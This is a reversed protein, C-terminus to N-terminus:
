AVEFAPLVQVRGKLSPDAHVVSDLHARAEVESGFEASGAHLANDATSALVFREDDATVHDKFPVKARKNHASLSSQAVATGGLFRKAFVSDIGRLKKLQPAGQSDITLLEYRNSRKIATSSFSTGGSPTLELGGKMPEFGPSALRQADSLDNFQAAAFREKVDGSKSLGGAVASLTFRQGDRVKSNGLKSVSVNLPVLKQVVQLTGSPHLVLAAEEAPISRMTVLGANGAPNFARWNELKGVEAALLPLVDVDPLPEGRPEGWTVDIAVGVDFFLLSISAEGRAHWPTPGELLVRISLGWVGLGFVKVSFNSYIEVEFYLPSFQLLADFSTTSEVSLVEFGFYIEARAGFQATNSTVAFYGEARVRGWSENLITVGLRTPVPFPLPPPTYRPHFGGVSLVFNADEGFAALLGMDGDITIFLIRSDFLSAFFYLRSRDFEIAGVFSVQLVVVAAAEAPLAVRLVGLIAINGPIEIIVGLSISVLTPTGWGLKAMPGILFTGEEPPFIARLDSIIRPANAVIDRPFMINNVSGNRVGAVLADLQMTRNLGVLGGVGLLTFGYGLQLGASGFEATIIMLLSFGDSGDPMRTSLIGIAKLSLFEAFTLELAGAYEGREADIFLYGGGRVVGADISLGVGNPPKFAVVLDFPGISGRGDAAPVLSLRIGINEVSAQLPGLNLSFGAGLSLNAGTNGGRASVYLTELKFVTLDLNIPIQFELGGSGAIALGSRSSWLLDMGFDASFGDGLVQKIFGDAESFTVFLRLKDVNAGGGGTNARFFVEPNSINGAFGGEATFGDLELRTSDRAGFLLFPEAPAGIVSLKGAIDLGAVDAQATVGDPFLRLKIVHSAGFAGTLKLTVADSLPIDIGAGGELIPSLVLGEPVGSGPSRPIPLASIGMRWRSLAVTDIGDVVTWDLQKVKRQKALALDIQGSALSTRPPSLTPQSGMALAIREFTAFLKTHDFSATGWGYLERLAGGPNSFVRGFQAFDVVSRTYPIRNAGSPTQKEFRVVGFAHVFSFILPQHRELYLVVLDGIMADALESWFSSQNFPTASVSAGQFSSFRAAVNKISQLVDVLARLRQEDTGSVLQDTRSALQQILPDLAFAASLPNLQKGSVEVDWGYRTLLAEIEAPSSIGTRFPAVIALFERLVPELLANM